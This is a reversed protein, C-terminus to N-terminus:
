YPISTTRTSSPAIWKHFMESQIRICQRQRSHRSKESANRPSPATKATINSTGQVGSLSRFTGYLKSQLASGNTPPLPPALAATMITPPSPREGTSPLEAPDWSIRRQSAFARLIDNQIPELPPDWTPPAIRTRNLWSEM